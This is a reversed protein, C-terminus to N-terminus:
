VTSMGCTKSKLANQTTLSPTLVRWPTQVAVGSHYAGQFDMSPSCLSGPVVPEIFASTSPSKGFSRSREYMRSKMANSTAFSFIVFFAAL